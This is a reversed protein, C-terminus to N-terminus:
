QLKVNLQQNIISYEPKAILSDLFIKDDAMESLLLNYFVFDSATIDTALYVYRTYPFNLSTSIIKGIHLIPLNIHNLICFITENVYVLDNKLRSPEYSVNNHDKCIDIFCKVLSDTNDAHITKSTFSGYNSLPYYCLNRSMQFLKNINNIFPMYNIVNDFGVLEFDSLIIDYKYDKNTFTAPIQDFELCDISGIITKDVNNQLFDKLLILGYNSLRCTIAVKLPPFRYGLSPIFYLLVSMLQMIHSIPVDIEYQKKIIACFDKAILIFLPSKFIEPQRNVFQGGKENLSLFHQRIVIMSIEQNLCETLLNNDDFSFAYNRKLYSTISNSLTMNENHFLSNTINKTPTGVFGLDFMEIALAIAENVTYKEFNLTNYLRNNLAFVFEIIKSQSAIYNVLLQDYSTFSTVMHGSKIRFDTAILYYRLKRMESPAIKLGSSSLTENLVSRLLSYHDHSFYNYWDERYDKTVNSNYWNFVASLCRRMRTEDGVLKMGHHPVNIIKIQYSEILDKAAKLPERLASKSYGTISAIEEFSIFNKCLLFSEVIKFRLLFTKEIESFGGYLYYFDTLSRYSDNYKEFDFISYTILSEHFIITLGYMKAVDNLQQITKKLEYDSLSFRDVFVALDVNRNILIFSIEQYTKIPM